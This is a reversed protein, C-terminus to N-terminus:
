DVEIWRIISPVLQFQIMSRQGRATSQTKGTYMLNCDMLIMNLIRGDKRTGNVYWSSANNEDIKSGDVWARTPDAATGTGVINPSGENMGLSAMLNELNFSLVSFNIEPRIHQLLHTLTLRRTDANVEEESGSLAVRFGEAIHGLSTQIMSRVASGIPSALQHYFRPTLVDVALSAIQNIEPRDHIGRIRIFDEDAFGTEDAVTVTTKAGAVLADTITVSDGGGSKEQFVGVENIHSFLEARTNKRM